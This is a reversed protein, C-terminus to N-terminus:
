NKQQQEWYKKREEEDIVTKAGTSQGKQQDKQQQEWYKKREEEDIVTKQGAGRNMAQQQHDNWFQQRQGADPIFPLARKEFKTSEEAASKHFGVGEGVSKVGGSVGQNKAGADYNAGMAGVCQKKIAEEDLDAESRANIQVHIPARISKLFNALELTHNHSNGRLMGSAGEGVYSIYVYKYLGAGQSFRIYFFQVKGENLEDMM